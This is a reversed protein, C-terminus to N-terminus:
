AEESRTMENLLQTLERPVAFRQCLHMLQDRLRTPIQVDFHYINECLNELAIGEDGHGYLELTSKWRELFEDRHHSPVRELLVGEITKLENSPKRTM